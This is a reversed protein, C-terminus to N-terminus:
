KEKKWRERNKEMWKSTVGLGPLVVTICLLWVNRFFPFSHYMSSPLWTIPGKKLVFLTIKWEGWRSGRRKWKISQWGSHHLAIGSGWLLSLFPLNLHTAVNNGKKVVSVKLKKEAEKGKKELSLKSSISAFLSLLHAVTTQLMSMM